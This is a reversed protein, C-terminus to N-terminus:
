KQNNIQLKNGKYLLQKYITKKNKYNQKFIM